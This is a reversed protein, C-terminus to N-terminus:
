FRRRCRRGMCHSVHSPYLCVCVRVRIVDFFLKGEELGEGLCIDLRPVLEYYVPPLSHTFKYTGNQVQVYISM